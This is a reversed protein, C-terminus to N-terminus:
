HAETHGHQQPWGINDAGASKGDTFIMIYDEWLMASIYQTWPRQHTLPSPGSRTVATGTFTSTIASARRGGHQMRMVSTPSSARRQRDAEGAGGRCGAIASRRRRRRSILLDAPDPEQQKIPSRGIRTGARVAAIKM